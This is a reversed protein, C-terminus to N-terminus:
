FPPFRQAPGIGRTPFPGRWRGVLVVLDLAFCTGWHPLYLRPPIQAVRGARVQRGTTRGRLLAPRGVYGVGEAPGAAAPTRRAGLRHAGGAGCGTGAPHATNAATAPGTHATPSVDARQWRWGGVPPAVLFADLDVPQRPGPSIAVVTQCINRTRVGPSNNLVTVIIPWGQLERQRWAVFCDTSVSLATDTDEDFLGERLAELFTLGHHWNHLGEREKGDSNRSAASRAEKMGAMIDPGLTPDSLMNILWATRSWYTMQRAPKGLATYWVTGCADCSTLRSRKHTFAVCGNLCCDM